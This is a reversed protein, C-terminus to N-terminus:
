YDWRESSSSIDEKGILYFQIDLSFKELRELRKLVYVYLPIVKLVEVYRIKNWLTTVIYIFSTELSKSQRVLVNFNFNNSELGPFQTTTLLLSPFEPIKIRSSFLLILVSNVTRRAGATLALKIIKTIPELMTFSDLGM